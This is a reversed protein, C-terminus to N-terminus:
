KVSVSLMGPAAQYQAAIAETATEAVRHSAPLRSQLVNTPWHGGVNRSSARNWLDKGPGRRQDVARLGAGRRRRGRVPGRANVLLVQAGPQLASCLTAGEAGLDLSQQSAPSAVAAAGPSASPSSQVQPGAHVALTTGAAIRTGAPLTVTTTGVELKWGSIDVSATSGSGGAGVNQLYIVADAANVSVQAIQIPGALTPSGGPVAPTAVQTVGTQVTPARATQSQQQGCGVVLVLCGGAVAPV